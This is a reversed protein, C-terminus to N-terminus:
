PTRGVSTPRPASARTARTLYTVNGILTLSLLVAALIFFPVRVRPWVVPPMRDAVRDVLSEGGRDPFDLDGSSAFQRSLLTARVCSMLLAVGVLGILPNRVPFARLLMGIWLIGTNVVYMSLLLVAAALSRERIGAAGMWYTM